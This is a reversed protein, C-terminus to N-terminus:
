GLMWNVTAFYWWINGQVKRGPRWINCSWWRRSSNISRTATIQDHSKVSCFLRWPIKRSQHRDMKKWSYSYFNPSLTVAPKLQPRAKVVPKGTVRHEVSQLSITESTETVYKNNGNVIRVWSVTRDRFLFEIMVEIGHRGQRCCVKVDLVPGIKTNGLIWGKVWSAEESRPLTYERCLNKMEDPGKEEDFTIFLKGKEASKKRRRLLKYLKQDEPLQEFKHEYDQLLNGHLEM